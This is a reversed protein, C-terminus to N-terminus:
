QFFWNTEKSAGAKQFSKRWNSNLKVPNSSKYIHKHPLVHKWFNKNTMNRKGNHSKFVKSIDKIHNEKVVLEKSSKLIHKAGSSRVQTVSKSTSGITAASRWQFKGGGGGRGFNGKVLLDKTRNTKTDVGNHGSPDIFNVPDGDCYLVGNRDQWGTTSDWRVTVVKLPYFGV